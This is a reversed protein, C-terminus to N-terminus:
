RLAVQSPDLTLEAGAAVETLRESQIMLRIDEVYAWGRESYNELGATMLEPSMAQGSDGAQARLTRFQGYADHSNLNNLYSRVSHRLNDFVRVYHSAGEARDEPVLGLRAKWTWEGFLNNGELAFRSTGWGSEKAAQALALAVPVTNVRKKLAQWTAPELPEGEVGYEEALDSIINIRRQAPLGEGLAQFLQQRQDRIRENEALVIPLVSRFFLSKRLDADVSSLDAPFAQLTLPPVQQTPWGYDAREFTRELQAASSAKVPVLPPTEGDSNAIGPWGLWWLALIAILATLPIADILASLPHSRRAPTNDKNPM